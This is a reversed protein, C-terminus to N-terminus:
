HRDKATSQTTTRLSRNRSSVRTADHVLSKHSQNLNARSLEQMEFADFEKRLQSRKSEQQALNLALRQYIGVSAAWVGLILSM